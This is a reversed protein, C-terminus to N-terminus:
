YNQDLVLLCSVDNWCNRPDRGTGRGLSHCGTGPNFHTRLMMSLPISKVRRCRQWTQSTWRGWWTQLQMKERIQSSQKKTLCNKRMSKKTDCFPRLDDFVHFISLLRGTSWGLYGTRRWVRRLAPSVTPVWRVVVKDLLTWKWWVFEGAASKLVQLM